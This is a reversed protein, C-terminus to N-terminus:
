TGQVLLLLFEDGPRPSIKVLHGFYYEKDIGYQGDCVWFPGKLTQENSLLLHAEEFSPVRWKQKSSPDSSNIGSVQFPISLPSFWM